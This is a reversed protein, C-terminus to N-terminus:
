RRAPVQAVAGPRLLRFQALRPDAVIMQGAIEAYPHQVAQNPLACDPRLVLRQRQCSRALAQEFTAAEIDAAKSGLSAREASGTEVPAFPPCMERARQPRRQINWLRAGVISGFASGLGCTDVAYPVAFGTHRFRESKHAIGVKFFEMTRRGLGKQLLHALVTSSETGNSMLETHRADILDRDLENLMRARLREMPQTVHAIDHM